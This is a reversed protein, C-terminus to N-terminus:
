PKERGQDESDASRLKRILRHFGWTADWTPSKEVLMRAGSRCSWVIFQHMM